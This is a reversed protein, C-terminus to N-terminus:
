CIPSNGSPIIISLQGNSSQQFGEAREIDPPGWRLHVAVGISAPVIGDDVVYLAQSITAAVTTSYAIAYDCLNDLFISCIILQGVATHLNGRAASPWECTNPIVNSARGQHRTAGEGFRLM